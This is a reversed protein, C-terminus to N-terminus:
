SASRETNGARRTGRSDSPARAFLALQSSPAVLERRTEDYTLASAKAVTCETLHHVLLAHAKEYGGCADCVQIDWYCGTHPCLLVDHFPV